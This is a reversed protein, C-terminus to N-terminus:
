IHLPIWNQKTQKAAMKSLHQSLTALVHLSVGKCIMVVCSGDITAGRSAAVKPVQHIPL